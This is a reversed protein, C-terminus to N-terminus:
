HVEDRALLAHYDTCTAACGTAARARELTGPDSDCLAAVRVDNCLALGPLHNQLTIGGCGIIGIGLTSM